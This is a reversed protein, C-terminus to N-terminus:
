LRLADHFFTLIIIKTLESFKEVKHMEPENTQTCQVTLHYPEQPRKDNKKEGRRRKSQIFSNQDFM